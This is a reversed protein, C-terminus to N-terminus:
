ALHACSEKKAFDVNVRVTESFLGIDLKTLEGLIVQPPPLQVDEQDKQIIMWHHKKPPCGVPKDIPKSEYLLRDAIKTSVSLLAIQKKQFQYSIRMDATCQGVM